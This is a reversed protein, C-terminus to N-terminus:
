QVPQMKSDSLCSEPGYPGAARCFLSFLDGDCGPFVGGALDYSMMPSTTKREVLVRVLPAQIKVLKVVEFSMSQLCVSQCLSNALM